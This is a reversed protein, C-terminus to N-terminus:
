PGFRLTKLIARFRPESRLPDLAPDVNAFFLEDSREALAQELLDLAREKEGLGIHVIAFLYPQVYQKRRLEELRRLVDRAQARQGALGSLHGLWGLPFPNGPDSESARRVEAVGEARSGLYFLAQGLVMRANQANPDAIVVTRAAAAAEAYRRGELLPWLSCSSALASLPDAEQVRRLHVAAEDFRGMSILLNGYNLHATPDSPTLKLATLYDQEAGTRDRDYVMKVYALASHAEAQNPDIEIARLAAARARGMAEHASLFM